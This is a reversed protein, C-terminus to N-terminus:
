NSAALDFRDLDMDNAGRTVNSLGLYQASTVKLIRCREVGSRTHLMMQGLPHRKGEDFRWM